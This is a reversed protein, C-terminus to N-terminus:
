KLCESAFSAENDIDTSSYVIDHKHVCRRTGGKMPRGEKMPRSEKM